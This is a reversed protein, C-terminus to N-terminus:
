VAKSVSQTPAAEFIFDSRKPQRTLKWYDLLPFPWNQSVRGSESKYWNTVGEMGWAMRRNEADVWENFADHVDRKVEMTAAGTSRLMDLCRVIYNVACESFFIISGQAVLNTNPGFICFFNPFGPVTMGLYARPDGNWMDNIEVGGRGYIKTQELFRSAHFGTGYIIVDVPHEIGDETIISNKTIKAIKETVLDVNPRKLTEIWQGNDRLTRKGGFPSKPIIKDLLDVRDGVQIRMQEILANRIRQNSASISGDRADWAPDIKLAPMVGEAMSWFLWFRYWNAYLPLNKFLWQQGEGVEAHYDPTPSVWPATRQLITLHEAERAVHPILQFASAGTGIVAVRKGRLDVDHRWTASHYQPGGFSARGPFDPFKPQNLQGVASIIADVEIIEDGRAESSLVARWKSTQENFTASLLSTELRIHDAIGFAAVTNEFYSKLAPQTSFRHPWDHNPFISYSYLHNQSDVRCGPYTNSFWTGGVGPNREVIRFKYGAKQLEVGALLGSMGAGIILVDRTPGPAREPSAADLGLEEELLPLYRAPIEVGAVFHMMAHLDEASVKPLAATKNEAFERVLPVAVARLSAQTAEDLGGTQQDRYPLYNPRWADRLLDM